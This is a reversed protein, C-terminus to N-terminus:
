KECRSFRKVYVVLLLSLLKVHYLPCNMEEKDFGSQCRIRTNLVLQPLAPTDILPQVIEDVGM